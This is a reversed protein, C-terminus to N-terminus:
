WGRKDDRRERGIYIGIESGGMGSSIERERM